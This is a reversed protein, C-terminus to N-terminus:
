VDVSVMLSMLVPLGPCGGWSECLEQVRLLILCCFCYIYIPEEEISTRITTVWTAVTKNYILEKEECWISFIGKTICVLLLSLLITSFFNQTNKILLIYEWTVCFHCQYVCMSSMTDHSLCPIKSQASKGSRTVSQHLLFMRESATMM